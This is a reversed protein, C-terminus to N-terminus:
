YSSRIDIQEKLFDHFSSFKLTPQMDGEEYFFISPDDLSTDFFYFMYGQHVYFVFDEPKLKFDSEDESLLDNAYEKLEFIKDFFCSEGRMFGGGDLGLKELFFEYDKPLRVNYFDKIKKIQSVDLGKLDYGREEIRKIIEKMRILRRHLKLVM